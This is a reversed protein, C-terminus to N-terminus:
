KLHNLKNLIHSIALGFTGQDEERVLYLNMNAVATMCEDITKKREQELLTSIDIRKGTVYKVLDKQFGAADTINGPFQYYIYENDELSKSTIDM